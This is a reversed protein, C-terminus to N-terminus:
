SLNVVHGQGSSMVVAAIGRWMLLPTLCATPPRRWGGPLPKGGAVIFENLAQLDVRVTRGLRVVPLIDQQVLTYVRAVSVRLLAETKSVTLQQLTSMVELKSCKTCFDLAYM